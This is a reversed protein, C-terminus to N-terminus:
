LAFVNQDNSSLTLDDTIVSFSLVVFNSIRSVKSGDGWKESFVPLCMTLFLLYQLQPFVNQNLYKSPHHYSNKAVQAQTPHIAIYSNRDMTYPGYFGSPRCSLAMPHKGYEHDIIIHEPEISVLPQASVGFDNKVVDEKLNHSTRQM